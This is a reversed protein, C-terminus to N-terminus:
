IRMQCKVPASPGSEKFLSVNDVVPGCSGSNTAGIEILVSESSAKFVSTMNRWTSFENNYYFESSKGDIAVFGTKNAVGCRNQNLFFTLTYTSGKETAVRQAITYKENGALDLSWLGSQANWPDKDLEFEKNTSSIYWPAIAKEDSVLCWSKKCYTGAHLEFDGNQILNQGQVLGALLLSIM